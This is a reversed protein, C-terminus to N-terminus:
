EDVNHVRLEFVSGLSNSFEVGQVPKGLCYEFVLKVAWEVGREALDWVRNMVKPFRTPAPSLFAENLEQKTVTSKNKTGQKRGPNGNNFRGNHNRYATLKREKVTSV